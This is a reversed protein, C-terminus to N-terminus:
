VSGKKKFRKLFERTADTSEFKLVRKEDPANGDVSPFATKELARQKAKLDAHVYNDTSTISSHGMVNALSTRDVGSELMFMAMTHRLVHPTVRKEALSPCNRAAIATYKEVIQAIADVSLAKGTRSPFLPCDEPVEMHDIWERVVRYADEGIPTRREKRGKGMCYVAPVSGRSVDRIRLGAIESVRLGTYVGLVLLAKDRKGIWTTTDPAAWLAEVEKEDLRAIERKVYIKGRMQLIQQCQHLHEPFRYSVFRFFRRIAALRANRTRVSNLRGSELHSLFRGLFEPTLDAIDLEVPEKGLTEKVFDLLMLFTLRYAVSTNQSLGQTNDIEENFFIEIAHGFSGNLKM